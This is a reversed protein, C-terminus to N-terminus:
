CFSDGSWLDSRALLLENTGIFEVELPLRTSRDPGVVSAGSSDVVDTGSVDLCVYATVSATGGDTEYTQLVMSDFTSTGVLRWGEDVYSQAGELEEDLADGTVVAAYGQTELWGGHGIEDSVALYEAYAQTAAALAEEETAFVPTTTPEPPLTPVPTPGACGSAVGIVAVAVLIHSLM